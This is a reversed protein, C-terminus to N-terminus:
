DFVLNGSDLALVTDLTRPYPMDVMRPDRMDVSRDVLLHSGMPHVLKGVVPYRMGVLVLRLMDVVAQLPRDEVSHHRDWGPSDVELDQNGVLFYEDVELHKGLLELSGM